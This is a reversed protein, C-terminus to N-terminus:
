MNKLKHGSLRDAVEVSTGIIDCGEECKCAETGHKFSTCWVIAIPKELSIKGGFENFCFYSGIVRGIQVWFGLAYMNRSGAANMMQGVTRMDHKNGFFREKSDWDRHGTTGFSMMSTGRRMTTNIKHLPSEPSFPGKYDVKATMTKLGLTGVRALYDSWPGPFLSYVHKQHEDVVRNILNDQERITEMRKPSQRVRSPIEYVGYGPTGGQPLRGGLSINQGSEIVNRVQHCRLNKSMEWTRAIFSYDIGSGQNVHKLYSDPDTVIVCIVIGHVTAVIGVDFMESWVKMLHRRDDGLEAHDVILLNTYPLLKSHIWYHNGLPDQM